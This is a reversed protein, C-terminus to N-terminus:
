VQKSSDSVDEALLQNDNTEERAEFDTLFQVRFSELAADNDAWTSDEERAQDLAEEYEDLLSEASLDEGCFPCFSIYSQIMPSRSSVLVYNRTYWRYDVMDGQSLQEKM